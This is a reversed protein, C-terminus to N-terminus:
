NALHGGCLKVAQTLTAATRYALAADTFSLDVNTGNLLRLFIEAVPPDASTVL